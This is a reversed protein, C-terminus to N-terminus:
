FSRSQITKKLNEQLQKNTQIVKLKKVPHHHITKYIMTLKNRSQDEKPKSVQMRPHWTIVESLHLTWKSRLLHLLICSLDKSTSDLQLKLDQQGKFLNNIRKNFNYKM